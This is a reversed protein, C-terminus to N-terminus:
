RPIKMIKWWNGKRLTRFDNFLLSESSEFKGDYGEVSQSWTPNENHIEIKAVDM